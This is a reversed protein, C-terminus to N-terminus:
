YDFSLQRTALCSVTCWVGDQVQALNSASMVIGTSVRQEALRSYAEAKKNQLWLLLVLDFM